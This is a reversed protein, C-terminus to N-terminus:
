DWGLLRSILDTILGRKQIVEKSSIDKKEVVITKNRVVDRYEVAKEYRTFNESHTVNVVRRKGVEVERYRKECITKQSVSVPQIRMYKDPAFLTVWVHYVDRCTHRPIKEIFEGKCELEENGQFRCLNYIFEMTDNEENCITMEQKYQGEWYGTDHNKDMYDRMESLDGYYSFNFSFDEEYCHEYGIEATGNRVVKEETHNVTEVVPVVVEYPEKDAYFETEVDKTIEEVPEYVVYPVQITNLFYILLIFCVFLVFIATPLKNYLVWVKFRRRLIKLRGAAKEEYESLKVMEDIVSDKKGM